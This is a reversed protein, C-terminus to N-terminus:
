WKTSFLTLLSTRLAAANTYPVTPASSIAWLAPNLSMLANKANPEMLTITTLVVVGLKDETM